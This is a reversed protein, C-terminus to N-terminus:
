IPETSAKQINPVNKEEEQLTIDQISSFGIDTYKDLTKLVEQHAFAANEASDPHILFTLRYTPKNM